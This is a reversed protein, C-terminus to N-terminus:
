STAGPRDPLSRAHAVAPRVWAALAEEAGVGEAGVRLWGRLVKGRMEMPGAHPEAALADTDEAPCRLMLGGQGSVALAMHGAAMFGLGGFMRKETIDPEDDLLDRVRQALEEDHAV